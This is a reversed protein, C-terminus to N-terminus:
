FSVGVSWLFDNISTLDEDNPKQPTGATINTNQFELKLQVRDNIHFNFSTKLTIPNYHEKIYRNPESPNLVSDLNSEMVYKGTSLGFSWNFYYIQNFTNIKGYFPSYILGISTYSLPNRIFPIQGNVVQISKYANNDKNTYVQQAIEIGIEETFYYGLSFATGNTDQFNSSLNSIYGLNLFVKKQLPHKKNQLVYVEKDPDLWLFEYLDKEGALAPSFFVSCLLHILLKKLM